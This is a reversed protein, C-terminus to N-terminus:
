DRVIIGGRGLHNYGIPLINTLYDAQFISADYNFEDLVRIHRHRWM